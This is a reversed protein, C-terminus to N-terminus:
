FWVPRSQIRKTFSTLPVGLESELRNIYADLTSISPLSFEMTRDGETLKKVGGQTILVRRIRRAEELEETTAM